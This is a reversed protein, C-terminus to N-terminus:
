AERYVPMGILCYQMELIYLMKCDELEFDALFLQAWQEKTLVMPFLGVFEEQLLLDLLRDVRAMRGEGAEAMQNQRELLRWVMDFPTMTMQDHRQPQELIQTWFGGLVALISTRAETVEPEENDSEYLWAVAEDDIEDHITPPLQSTTGENAERRECAMSFDILSPMFAYDDSEPLTDGYALELLGNWDGEMHHHLEQFADHVHRPINEDIDDISMTVSERTPRPRNPM